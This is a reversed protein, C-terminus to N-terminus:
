KMLGLLYHMHSHSSFVSLGASIVFALRFMRPLDSIEIEKLGEKYFTMGFLISMWLGFHVIYAHGWHMLYAIVIEEESM